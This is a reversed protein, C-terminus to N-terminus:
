VRGRESLYRVLEEKESNSIAEKQMREINGRMREIVNPWESATHLKPDPLAHCQTCKRQFLQGTPSTDNMLTDDAKKLAHASLYEAIKEANKNGPVFLKQSSFFRRRRVRNVMRTVVDPWEEATHLQPSPLDHCQACTKIFLQAGPSTQDELMQATFGIPMMPKKPPPGPGDDM